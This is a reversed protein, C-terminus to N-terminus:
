WDPFGVKERKIIRLLVVADNLAQTESHGDNGRCLKQMREFILAEVKQVKEPLKTSDFELVLEQLPTQWEPYKLEEENM